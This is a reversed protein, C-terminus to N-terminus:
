RHGRSFRNYLTKNHAMIYRRMGGIIRRDDIHPMGHSLTFYPKIRNLPAKSVIAFESM